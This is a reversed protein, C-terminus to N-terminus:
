EFGRVRRNNAAENSGVGQPSNNGIQSFWDQPIRKM